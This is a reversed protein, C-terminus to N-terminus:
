ISNLINIVVKVADDSLSPYIPLSVTEQTLQFAKPFLLKDGLLESDKIPIISGINNNKLLNMVKSVKQTKLIARYRVPILGIKQGVDLFELGTQKYKCFIEERRKIFGNLKKLQVSGIAAQLNTMQFNFRMKNDNRQDFERYDRIADILKKEKSVVMGGQGGTTILKTAYFSFIGLRGHLGVYKNNIRAGLAQACDEVIDVNSVDSIDVPIGFMHPVIVIEVDSNVVKSLDINPSTLEIDVLFEQGGILAIANRLSSCTYVPLAIIKKKAKLAWLALYLAATGSSVAVASHSPLGLFCCMEEEFQEVEKGQAIFGSNITGTVALIEEEDLTPRNHLILNSFNQM